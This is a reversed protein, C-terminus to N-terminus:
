HNTYEGAYNTVCMYTYGRHSGISTGVFRYAGDMINTRHGRSPVGDDILLAIVIERGTNHGYDINEAAGVGWTGYREIRQNMSSGDAGTHGTLGRPGTDMVHDRSALSLGRMPMLPPVGPRRSLDDICSQLGNRGETTTTYVTAGPALYANNGFPGGFWQLRPKLYEEAYRGPDSRAKNMELIVDKEAPTLYDVNRATDLASIDWARATSCVLVLLFLLKLHSM